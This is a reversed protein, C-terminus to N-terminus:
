KRRNNIARSRSAMKRKAKKLAFAGRSLAKTPGRRYRTKGTKGSPPSAVVGSALLTAALVGIKNRM